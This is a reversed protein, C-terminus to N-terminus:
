AKVIVSYLDGGERIFVSVVRDGVYALGSKTHLRDATLAGASREALISQGFDIAMQRGEKSLHRPHDLMGQPSLQIVEDRTEDFLSRMRRRKCACEPGLDPLTLNDAKDYKVQYGMDQLAGLSVRTIKNATLSGGRNLVETPLCTPDWHRCSLGTVGAQELPVNNCGSVAKYERVANSGNYVCQGSSSQGVFNNDDFDWLTGLGSLVALNLLPAAFTLLSAFLERCSPSLHFWRV